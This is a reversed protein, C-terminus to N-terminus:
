NAKKRAREEKYYLREGRSYEATGLLIGLLVGLIFLGSLQTAIKGWDMPIERFIANFIDRTLRGGFIIPLGYIPISRFIIFRLYGRERIKTWKEHSHGFM